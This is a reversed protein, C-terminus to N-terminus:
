VESYHNYGNYGFFENFSVSKRSVANLVVGIKGGDFENLTRYVRELSRQSSQEHRTVLLTFDVLRSLILADTVALMPPSDILVYDFNAALSRLLTEMNESGLLEAPYRVNSGAPIALLKPFEIFPTIVNPSSSDSLADSLGSKTSESQGAQPRESGMYATLGAGRMDADMLLVRSGNLAMMAALNLSLTSKGEKETASTILITRPSPGNRPHLLSTRLGRLAEVYATNPGDLVAVRGVGSDQNGNGLRSRARSAIGGLSRSSTGENTVPLIALLPARIAKEIMVMGEVRDSTSEIFLAGAIGLFGGLLISLAPVVLIYPFPKSPVRGADVVAINSSRLGEVVGAEMLHTHLTQYLARADNADQRAILLAIAKDNMNDALKRTQDYVNRTSEETAQSAKYDNAAREGIRSVESKIQANISDLSAGEDGLKPNASGYKSTDAAVQSALSAQQTRLNQLLLFSNNVAPSSSALSSGALGSILEPDGNEITKYLAGKLIRNSIANSLEQTAQQLRDLIASYVIEKGSADPIGLSYIGSQQQLQELKGQQEEADKKIDGLQRALWSSVQSTAAFRNTLTYDVLSKSLDNVVAAAIKPDTNTYEIDILRTGPQSKIKLHKEFMKEARDRRHPADDLSANPPDPIGGQNLLDLTSQVPSFTPSFDATEELHLDNIVKLALSYSQLINAQTTLDINDELSDSSVPKNGTLNELGLGDTATKQVEIEGKGEYSPKLFLCVIVALLFCGAMTWLIFARRRNLTLLLGLITLEDNSDPHTRSETVNVTNVFSDIAKPDRGM